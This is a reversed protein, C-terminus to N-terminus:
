PRWNIIYAGLPLPPMKWQTICSFLHTPTWITHLIAYMGKRRIDFANNLPINFYMLMDGSAEPLSTCDRSRSNDFSNDFCFILMHLYVIMNGSKNVCELFARQMRSGYNIM